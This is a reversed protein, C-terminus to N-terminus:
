SRKKLLLVRTIKKSGIDQTSVGEAFFDTSDITFKDAVKIDTEETLLIYSEVSADVSLTARLAETVPARFGSGATITKTGSYSRVGSSLARRYTDFSVNFRM